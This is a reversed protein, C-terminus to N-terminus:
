QSLLPRTTRRDMTSSSSRSSPYTQQLASDIADRLFRGQNYCPIVISVVPQHSPTM